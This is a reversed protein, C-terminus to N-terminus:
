ARWAPALDGTQAMWVQAVELRKASIHDAAKEHVGRGDIPTLAHADVYPRLPDVDVHRM